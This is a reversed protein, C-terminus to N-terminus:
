KINAIIDTLEKETLAKNAYISYTLDGSCWVANSLDDNGKATIELNNIKLTKTNSYINYDGSINDKGESTRYCIQNEGNKFTLQFIENGIVSVYELEYGSPIATPISVAFKVAKKAEDVTKYEVIPNPIQVSEETNFSISYDKVTYTDDGLLLGFMEIPVYTKSDKLVPAAGLPSPASMGILGTSPSASMYYSDTGIAISTKVTNNDLVISKDTDDWTVTFGLKEALARLPVMIHNNESYIEADISDNNVKLTYATQPAASTLLIEENDNEAFVTGMASLTLIGSLIILTTKKM